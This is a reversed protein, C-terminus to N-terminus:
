PRAHRDDDAGGSRESGSRGGNGAAPECRVVIATPTRVRGAERLGSRALVDALVVAAVEPTVPRGDVTCGDPIEVSGGPAPALAAISEVVAELTPGSPPPDIPMEAALRARQRARTRRFRVVGFPLVILVAIVLSRALTGVEVDALIPTAAM